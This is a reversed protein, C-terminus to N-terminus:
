RKHRWELMAFRLVEFLSPKVTEINRAACVEHANRLAASTAGTLPPDTLTGQEGAAVLSALWPSYGQFERAGTESSDTSKRTKQLSLAQDLEMRQELTLRRTIAKRDGWSLKAWQHLLTERSPQTEPM